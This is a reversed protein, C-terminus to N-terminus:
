QTSEEEGGFSAVMEQVARAAGEWAAGAQAAGTTTREVSAMM